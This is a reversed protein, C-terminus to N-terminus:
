RIEKPKNGYKQNWTDMIESFDIGSTNPIQNLAMKKM